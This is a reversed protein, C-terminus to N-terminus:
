KNWELGAVDFEIVKNGAQFFQAEIMLKEAKKLKSIFRKEDNIFIVDASGDAPASFGYKVPTSDDFKVKISGDFGVGGIFQGKSVSLVVGQQGDQKRVTLYFSSGGNYPFDFDITNTSTCTAYYKKEDSMKDVQESYDWNSSTEPSVENVDSVLAAESTQAAPTASKEDSNFANLISSVIVVLVFGILIKRWLPMKPPTSNSM